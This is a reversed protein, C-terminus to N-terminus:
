LQAALAIVGGVNIAIGIVLKVPHHKFSKAVAQNMAIEKMCPISTM